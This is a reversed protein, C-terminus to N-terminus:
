LSVLENLMGTVYSKCQSRDTMMKYAQAMQLCHECISISLSKSTKEDFCSTVLGFKGQRCFQCLVVQSKPNSGAVSELCSNLCKGCAARSMWDPLAADPTYFDGCKKCESEILYSNELPHYCTALALIRSHHISFYEDMHRNLDTVKRDCFNCFNRDLIQNHDTLLHDHLIQALNEDEEEQLNESFKCIQFHSACHNCSIITKTSVSSNKANVLLRVKFSFNQFFKSFNTRHSKILPATGSQSLHHSIKDISDISLPWCESCCLCNFTFKATKTVIQSTESQKQCKQTIKPSIQQRKEDFTLRVTKM